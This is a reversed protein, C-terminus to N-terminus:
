RIVSLKKMHARNTGMHVVQMVQTIRDQRAQNWKAYHTEAVAETIGLVDAVDRMSGGSSLIKTALTHRFRHAHADKIGALRFVASLSRQIISVATRQSGTGNIFFYRSKGAGAGRPTPLSNLARFLEAPLPLMVLGGTKRTHLMISGDQIRSRELMAVDSVRLACYRLLLVIAYARSREYEGSGIRRAVDLMADMEADTYPVIPRPKINRPLKIKKAPNDKLWGREVCFGFFQRLTELERAATTGALMTGAPSRRQVRFSDLTEVGRASVDLQHVYEIGLGECFPALHNALRNRYNRQVSEVMHQCNALYAEVADRFPKSGLTDSEELAAAKVRARSLDRTGLSVRFIRIGDRYGDAWLPCGCKLWARGKDRNPCKSTHRRWITSLM